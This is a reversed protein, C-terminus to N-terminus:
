TFTHIYVPNHHLISGRFSPKLSVKPFVQRLCSEVRFASGPHRTVSDMFNLQKPECTAICYPSVSARRCVQSVGVNYLMTCAQFHASPLQKRHLVLGSSHSPLRVNQSSSFESSGAQPRQLQISKLPCATQPGFFGLHGLLQPSLRRERRIVEESRCVVKYCITVVPRFIDTGYVGSKKVQNQILEKEFDSEAQLHKM